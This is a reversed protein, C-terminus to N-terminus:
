LVLIVLIFNKLSASVFIRLDTAIRSEAYLPGNSKSGCKYNSWKVNRQVKQM